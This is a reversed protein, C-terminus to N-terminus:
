LRPNCLEWTKPTTGTLGGQNSTELVDHDNKKFIDADWFQMGAFSDWCGKALVMLVGGKKSFDVDRSSVDAPDCTM